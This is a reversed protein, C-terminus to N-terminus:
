KEKTLKNEIKYASRIEALWEDLKQRTRVERLHNEIRPFMEILSLPKLDMREQQPLYENHYFAEIDKFNITIKEQLRKKLVKEYLVKERIYAKFDAWDMDFSQLRSMLQDLSGFKEIVATQVEAYDEEQLQFDNKYELYVMKYDILTKLVGAYFEEESEQKRNFGPCLQVAKDIDTLTIIEENVVAAIRDILITNKDARSEPGV